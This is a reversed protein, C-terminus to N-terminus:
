CCMHTKISIIQKSTTTYDKEITLTDEIYKLMDNYKNNSIRYIYFDFCYFKFHSFLVWNNFQTEDCHQKAANM